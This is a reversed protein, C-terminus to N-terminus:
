QEGHRATLCSGARRAEAQLTAAQLGTGRAVVERLGGAVIRARLVAGAVAGWRRRDGDDGGPVRKGSAKVDLEAGRPAGDKRV